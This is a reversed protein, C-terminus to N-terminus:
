HNRKATKSSKEDSSRKASKHGEIVDIVDAVKFADWGKERMHYIEEQHERVWRKARGPEWKHEAILWHKVSNRYKVNLSM